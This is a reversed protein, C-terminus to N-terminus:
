EQEPQTNIRWTALAKAYDSQASLTELQVARWTRRADLVDVASIAGHAFAFEAANAARRAAPVLGSQYRQLRQASTQLTNRAANLEGLAQAHTRALADQAADFAVEASRIDGEFYSGLFLPFSLGVGVTNDTGSPYHELQAGVSIDRTRQARALDRQTQAADLRAQAARMDPRRAILAELDQPTEPDALQPWASVAQLRAAAVEEGILYALALQATANDAIAQQADNETHLTDVEIRAVEAAALDGAKLRLNAKDQASAAMGAIDSTLQVKAQAFLLDYYAGDLAIRVQRRTDLLDARSAQELQSAGRMRLARKGGREILEDVRLTTDIRKSDLNGAGIGQKPSISVSNISIQPNPRAAASLGAAQASELARRAALLDRNHQLLRTEAQDLTLCLAAPAPEAARSGASLLSLAILLPLLLKM